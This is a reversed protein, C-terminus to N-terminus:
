EGAFDSSSSCCRNRALHVIRASGSPSRRLGVADGLLQRRVERIRGPAIPAFVGHSEDVVREGVFLDLAGSKRRLQRVKKVAILWNRHVRLFDPGLMLELEALSVDIDFRGFVSHVFALRARTEFAWVERFDLLVIRHGGSRAAIRLIPERRRGRVLFTSRPAEEKGTVSRSRANGFHSV